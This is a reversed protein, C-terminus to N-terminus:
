NMCAEWRTSREIREIERQRNGDTNKKIQRFEVEPSRCDDCVGNRLDGPDCNAGCIRCEIM